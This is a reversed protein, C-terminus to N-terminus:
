AQAAVLVLTGVVLLLAAATLCLMLRSSLHSYEGRRLAADTRQQRVAGAVLMAAALVGYGIGLVTYPWRVGKTVAPLV